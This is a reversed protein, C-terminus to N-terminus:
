CDPSHLLDTHCQLPPFSSLMFGLSLLTSSLSAASHFASGSTKPVRLAKKTQKSDRSILMKRAEIKEATQCTASLKLHVLGVTTLDPKSEIYKCWIADTWCLLFCIWFTSLTSLSALEKVYFNFYPKGVLLFVLKYTQLHLQRNFVCLARYFTVPGHLSM